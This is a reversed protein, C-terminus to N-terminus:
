IASTEKRRSRASPKKRNKVHKPKVHKPKGNNLMCDVSDKAVGRLQSGRQSFGMYLASVATLIAPIIDDLKNKNDNM